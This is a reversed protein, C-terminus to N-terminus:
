PRKRPVYKGGGEPIDGITVTEFKALDFYALQENAQGVKWADDESKVVHSCDLYVKDDDKNHWAGFHSGEQSLADWNALAYDTLDDPKMTAADFIAERGKFTSLAFGTKPQDGSVPNYTFGGNAKIADILGPMQGHHAFGASEEAGKPGEGKAGGAGGGTSAFRGGEDRAYDDGDTHETTKRSQHAVEDRAAAGPTPDAGDFSFGITGEDGFRAHRVGDIVVAQAAQRELETQLTERAAM